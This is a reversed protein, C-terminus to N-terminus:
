LDQILVLLAVIDRTADISAWAEQNRLETELEDPCHQLVLAHGQSNLDQWLDSSAKYKVIKRKYSDTEISWDYDDNVPENLMGATMRNAVITEGTTDTQCVYKRVPRTPESYAPAQLDTMALALVPGHKYTSSTSVHRALVRVTDTFEAADNARTGSSFAVDHHNATPASWKKTTTNTTNTGNRGRNSGARHMRGCGNGKYVM